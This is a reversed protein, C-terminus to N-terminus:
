RCWDAPRKRSRRYPTARRCGPLRRRPLPQRQGAHEDTQHRTGEGAEARVNPLYDNGIHGIEGIAVADVTIIAAKTKGDSIVLAKVFLPDNVPGSRDTIDVKAVGATLEGAAARGCSTMAGALCVLRIARQGSSTLFIMRLISNM